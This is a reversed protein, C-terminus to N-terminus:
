KLYPLIVRGLKDKIQSKANIYAQNAASNYDLSVGKISNMNNNYVLSHTSNEYLAYEVDLFASYVDEYNNGERTNANIEIVYDCNKENEAVSINQSRLYNGLENKLLSSSNLVSFTSEDSKIFVIVPIVEILIKCDSLLNEFEKGNLIQYDGHRNLFNIFDIRCSITYNLSENYINVIRNRAIGNYDSNVTKREFANLNGSLEYIVPINPLIISSDTETFKLDIEFDTSFIKSKSLRYNESVPQIDFNYLIKLLQSRIAYWQNVVLAYKEHIFTNTILEELFKSAELWSSISEDIKGSVFYAEADAIKKESSRLAEDYEYVLNNRFTQKSLRYYVFYNKEDEWNQYLEYDKLKINTYTKVTGFYDQSLKLNNESTYLENSSTINVQIQETILSLAKKTAISQYDPNSKECSSIGIYYEPDVTFSTVWDPQQAFCDSISLFAILSKLILYKM